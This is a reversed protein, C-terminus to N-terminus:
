HKRQLGITFYRLILLGFLITYVGFFIVALPNFSHHMAVGIQRSGAKIFFGDLFFFDAGSRVPDLIRLERVEPARNEKTIQIRVFNNEMSFSKEPIKFIKNKRAKNGETIFARDTVYSIDVVKVKFGAMTITQGPYIRVPKHRKIMTIDVVHLAIVLLAAIHILAMQVAKQRKGQGARSLKGLVGVQSITCCGTNIFLCAGVIIFVILWAAIIPHDVIDGMCRGLHTATMERFVADYKKVDALRSGWGFVVALLAFFLYSARLSFFFRKM